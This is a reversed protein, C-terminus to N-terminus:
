KIIKEIWCMKGQENIGAVIVKLQKSNDNNFFSFQFSPNEKTTVVYPNWYLTTRTDRNASKEVDYNPSYFQKLKTYGEIIKYGMGKVYNKVDDGRRTYVAIAGGGGGLRAGIFPPRFAKVYAIDNISVSQLVEVDVGVEDLYFVTEYGRWKVIPPISSNNIDLGAIRGILYQFIDGSSTYANENILDIQVANGGTFFTSTYREDVLDVPRKKRTTTITVEDLAGSNKIRQLRKYEIQWNRMTTILQPSYKISNKIITDIISKRPANFLGTSYSVESKSLKTNDTFVQFIKLNDYFLLNSKQFLGKRDVPVFFQKRVKDFSETIIMVEQNVKIKGVDEILNGIISIYNTDKPYKINPFKGALVEQWNYKRWGNTLMVYDLFLEKSDNVNNFYFSPNHVYGKIDSSLLLYSYISNGTDIICNADVISVSLNNNLTDNISIQLENKARSNLNVQINEISSSVEYDKNNIFTLREAIPVFNNSLLSIQLVGTGFQKTDIDISQKTRNLLKINAAYVTETGKFCFLKVNKLEEDIYESREIKVKIFGDFRDVTIGVGKELVLPLKTSFIQKSNNVQWYAIYQKLSNVSNFYILGMGDHETKFSDIVENNNDKIVGAVNVPMGKSNTAKYAVFSSIGNILNGGEPFFDLQIKDEVQINPIQQDNFVLIDKTFILSSDFNLMWSTYAKVKLNKGSYNEPIDFQGTCSSAFVPFSQHLILNGSADYWDAYVTKSTSIPLGNSTLYAKFWITESTNYVLKDFHIFMKEEDYKNFFDILFSDQTFCKSFILTSLILILRSKM